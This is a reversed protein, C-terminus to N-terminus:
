GRGQPRKKKKLAAPTRGKLYGVHRLREWDTIKRKEKGKDNQTVRGRSRQGRTSMVGKGGLTRRAGKTFTKPGKKTSNNTTNNAYASDREEEERGEFAKKGKEKKKM